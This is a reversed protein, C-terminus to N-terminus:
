GRGLGRAGLMARTAFGFIAVGLPVHVWLLNVGKASLAGLAAQLFVVAGLSLLMRGLRVGQPVGRLRVVAACGAILASAILIGANVAHARHAWEVGSLMAGAFIAECLVALAILVAIVSWGRWVTPVRSEGLAVAVDYQDANM